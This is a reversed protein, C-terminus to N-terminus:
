CVERALEARRELRREEAETRAEFDDEIARQIMADQHRAEVQQIIIGALDDDFPATLGEIALVEVGEVMEHDPCEFSVKVDVEGVPGLDITTDYAYRRAM